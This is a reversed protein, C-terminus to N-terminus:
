GRVEKLIREVPTAQSAEILKVGLENCLKRKEADNQLKGALAEAGGFASVAKWHQEGQIELAIMKEPLFIDLHMRSKPLPVHRLIKMKPFEKKLRKWWQNEFSSVPERGTRKSQQWMVWFYSCVAKNESSLEMDPKSLAIDRYEKWVAKWVKKYEDSIKIKSGFLLPWYRLPPTRGSNLYASLNVPKTKM